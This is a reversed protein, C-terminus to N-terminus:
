FAKPNDYLSKNPKPIVVTTSLKFYKPWHSLNICADAINIIKSLCDDDKIILKWHRWTMKDLGPASTDTYKGIASKFEYGSFSNWTQRPKHAIEDLVSLNVSRHLATNFTSHLATWLCKPTLCPHDNHTIAETAPLKRKKVWNMLEWPGQSKNVIEQIKDDFFSREANKVTSKFFKWNERSRTSRHIDLARSCSELWWQKSHKSIKSKKANKSWSQEVILGLQNVLQELKESNDINTMDLSKFNSIIDKIFEMEQDSKPPITFKSSQIIEKFIPINVLLPAHDSSLRSDSLIVHRDLEVSGHRLFMLDIVSNSEGATDSFRTPGLNTLLSLALNFSDAIMILDDSISFHFQFSPDWLSDCINFNGMMILVNNINVETDKLYKLAL